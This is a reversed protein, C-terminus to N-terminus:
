GEPSCPSVPLRCPGPLAGPTLGRGEPAQKQGHGRAQRWLAKEDKTRPM